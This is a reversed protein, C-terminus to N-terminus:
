EENIATALNIFATQTRVSRNELSTILREYKHYLNLEQLVNEENSSVDTENSKPLLVSEGLLWELSKNLVKSLKLAVDATPISDPRNRGNTITTYPIGTLASLTKINMGQYQLEENVNKWFPSMTYNNSM